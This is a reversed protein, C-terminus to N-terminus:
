KGAHVVPLLLKYLDLGHELILLVIGVALPYLVQKTMRSESRVAGHFHRVEKKALFGAWAWAQEARSRRRIKQAFAPGEAYMLGRARLQALPLKALAEKFAVIRERRRRGTKRLARAQIEGLQPCLFELWGKAILANTVGFGLLSGIL